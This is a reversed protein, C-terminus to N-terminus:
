FSGLKFGFNLGFNSLDKGELSDLKDAAWRYHPGVFFRLDETINIELNVGPELLMFVGTEIVNENIEEVEPPFQELIAAGGFGLVLPVTFHVKKTTFGIFEGFVGGYVMALRLEAVDGFQGDGDFVNKSVFGGGALGFAFTRNTIVAGKIGLYLSPEGKLTSAKGEFSGYGGWKNILGKGILSKTEENNQSHVNLILSSLVMIFITTKM